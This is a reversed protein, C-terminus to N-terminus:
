AVPPEPALAQHLVAQSNPEAVHRVVDLFDRVAATLSTGSRQLLCITRHPPTFDLNIPVIKEDPYESAFERMSRFAIHNSGLLLNRVVSYSSTEARGRPLTGGTKLFFDELLKRTMSGAPPLIFPFDLMAKAPLHNKGALPHDRSVFFGMPDLAIPEVKIGELLTRDPYACIIVDVEGGHLSALLTEIPGEVTRVIIQPHQTLTRKIAEPLVASRSYALGGVCVLGTSVGQASQVDDFMKSMEALIRRATVSFTIGAPTAIMGKPMRSFLEIGLDRELLRISYSVAPQSVSLYYAARQVSRFDHVAIM